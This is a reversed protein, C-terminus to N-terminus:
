RRLASISNSGQDERCKPARGVEMRKETAVPGYRPGPLESDTSISLASATSFKEPRVSRNEPAAINRPPFSVQQKTPESSRVDAWPALGTGVRALWSASWDKWEAEL